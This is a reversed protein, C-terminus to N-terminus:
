GAMGGNICLSKFEEITKKVADLSLRAEILEDGIYGDAGTKKMCKEIDAVQMFTGGCCLIISEPLLDRIQKVMDSAKMLATDMDEAAEWWQSEEETRPVYVAIVSPNADVIMEIQSPDFIFGVTFDGDLTRKKIDLLEERYGVHADRIINGYHGVWGGATPFHTVGSFGMDHFRKVVMDINEYPEFCGYGVIVPVDPAHSIVAPGEEEMVLNCDEGYGARAFAPVRGDIGFVSEKHIMIFDVDMRNAIDAILGASATMGFIIRGTEKKKKLRKIIQDTSFKGM